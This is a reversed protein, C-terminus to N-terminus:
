RDLHRFYESCSIPFYLARLRLLLSPRGQVRAHFLHAAHRACFTMLRPLALTYRLGTRSQLETLRLADARAPEPSAISLLFTHTAQMRRAIQPRLRHHLRLTRTLYGLVNAVTRRRDTPATYTAAGAFRRHMVLPEDVMAISDYAAAVQALILDYMRVQGYRSVDPLLELLTRRMLITHGAFAALYVLRLLHYNPARLDTEVPLDPAATAFSRSQTACMLRTGIAQMQRELKDPLWIDDQDCLAIFAGKARRLASFFNANIGM